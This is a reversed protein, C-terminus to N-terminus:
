SASRGRPRREANPTRGAARVRPQRSTGRVPKASPRSPRPPAVKAKPPQPQQPLEPLALMGALEELRKLQAGLYLPSVSRMRTLLDSAIRLPNYPGAHEPVVDTARALVISTVLESVASEYEQARLQRSREHSARTLQAAGYSAPVRDIRRLSRGVRHFEGRALAARESPLEGYSGEAAILREETRASAAEFRSSLRELHAGARVLLLAGAREPLSQARSILARVCDCGAPDFARAGRTELASLAEQMGTTEM